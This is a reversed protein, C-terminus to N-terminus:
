RFRVDGDDFRNILYLAFPFLALTFLAHGITGLITPTTGTDLTVFLYMLVFASGVTGAWWALIVRWEQGSILSSAALVVGYVILFVLAWMGTPAGWLYDLFVGCGLLTLPAWISPRILPWAFALAMPFVPEPLSLGFFLRIPTAMLLSAGVAILAPYLIWDRPGVLRVAAGRKM